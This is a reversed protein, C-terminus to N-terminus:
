IFLQAVPNLTRDKLTVLAVPWGSPQNLSVPLIKLGMQDTQSRMISRPLVTLYRGSQLLGARLQVSFTVVASKPAALGLAKFAEAVTTSNLSYDPPLVWPEDILEALALKRRRAFPSNEGSVIVMEDNFLVEVNLDDAFQHKDSIRVLAFDLNRDRLQPLDLTPAFVTSVNVVIGAHRQHLKQIIPPLIVAITEPCGLKVEGTTPEALFQIEKITQRLSDFAATSGRLL